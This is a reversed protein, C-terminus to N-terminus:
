CPIYNLTLNESTIIFGVTLLFVLYLLHPWQWPSPPMHSYCFLFTFIIEHPFHNEISTLYSSLYWSLPVISFNSYIYRFLRISYHRFYRFIAFIYSLQHIFVYIYNFHLKIMQQHCHYIWLDFIMLCCNWCCAHCFIKSKNM